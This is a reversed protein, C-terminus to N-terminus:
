VYVHDVVLPSHNALLFAQLALVPDVRVGPHSAPDRELGCAIYLGVSPRLQGRKDVHINKCRMNCGGSKTYQTCLSVQKLASDVSIILEGANFMRAVKTLVGEVESKKKPAM